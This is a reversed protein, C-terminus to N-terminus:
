RGRSRGLVLSESRKLTVASRSSFDIALARARTDRGASEPRWFEAVRPVSAAGPGSLRARSGTLPGARPPGRGDQGSAM